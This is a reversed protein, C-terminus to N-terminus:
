LEIAQVQVHVGFGVESLDDHVCQVWGSIRDGARLRDRTVTEIRNDLPLCSVEFVRRSQANQELICVEISEPAISLWDQRVQGHFVLGSLAPCVTMAIVPVSDTAGSSSGQRERRVAGQGQRDGPREALPSSIAIRRGFERYLSRRSFL